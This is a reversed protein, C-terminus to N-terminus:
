GERGGGREEGGMADNEAGMLGGGMRGGASERHWAPTTEERRCVTEEEAQHHDCLGKVARRECVVLCAPLDHTNVSTQKCTKSLWFCCYSCPYVRQPILFLASLFLLSM